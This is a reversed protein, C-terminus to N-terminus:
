PSKKKFREILWDLAAGVLLVGFIWMFIVVLAYIMCAIAKVIQYILYM